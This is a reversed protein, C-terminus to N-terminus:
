GNLLTFLTFEGTLPDIKYLKDLTSGLEFTAGLLYGKPVTQIGNIANFIIYSLLLSLRCSNNMLRFCLVFTCESDKCPMYRFEDIIM